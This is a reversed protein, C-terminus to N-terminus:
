QKSSDKSEAPASANKQGQNWSLYMYDGLKRPKVMHRLLFILGFIWCVVGVVIYAVGLFPNKGGLVSVTSIVISKTGGFTSVNFNQTVSITYVGAPVDADSRGWLKRFKPLGAPRMWVQFRQMKGIDPFNTANYGKSFDHGPFAKVWQPPPYVLTSLNALNRLDSQKFKEADTPWAIGDETFPIASGNIPSIDSIFDTFFSNAILGCPYIQASPEFTTTWNYSGAAAQSPNALPNCNAAPANAGITNDLQKADFSKVYRRHNQYFNTLRYYMFVPGSMTEDIAFQISCNRSSPDYTNKLVPYHISWSSGQNCDTYDFMVEKVQASAMYLGVGIPIFIAGLVFFAPLVTKPTLIPQWAKLRQQKFATNSPRKTKVKAEM